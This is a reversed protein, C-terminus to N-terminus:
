DRVTDSHHVSQTRESPLDPSKDQSSGIAVDSVYQIVYHSLRYTVCYGYFADVPDRQGLDTATRGPVHLTHAAAPDPFFTNLTLGFSMMRRMM